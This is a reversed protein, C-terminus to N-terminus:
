RWDAGVAEAVSKFGDRKLLEALERAMRGVLGPGEYVLASYLQVLSAGARIKAYATAGSEVGGVGVLPLRGETLRYMEGLLRTSPEFLPRGSLGGAEAKWRSKLSAPRAITTNSVILGDLRSDLAVAAIDRCDAETLDPAIKLLLPPPTGTGSLADRVAGLLRTLEDRGQLARLGPTNPSSVNIVLYDAFPALATAGAAYDPAAEPSDKNKGLNVGVLGGVPGGARLAALRQAAAELGRNNFGMRNIVARDESLRFLRPKPNGPQPRPTVSGVEVLGFGLGFLPRIAEANKDFGAALGIPSALRRGWLEVALLPDDPAAARPALGSKLLGLALGHAQEPDLRFILPRLLPYLDLAM